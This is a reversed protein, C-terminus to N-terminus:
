PRAEQVPAASPDPARPATPAAAVRPGRDLRRWSLEALYTLLALLLLLPRGERLREPERAGGTAPAELADPWTTTVRSTGGTLAALAVLDLAATPDAQLEPAAAPPVVLRGQDPEAATGVALRLAGPDPAVLRAEFHGPALRRFAPGDQAGVPRAAPWRDHDGLRRAGLTVVAGERRVTWAFGAPPRATRELTRALLPGLGDWASWGASGAGAPETTLASVRGLGTEWTALVPHGEARTELLVQAGPRLRTEVYGDLDPVPDLDPGADGGAGPAAEGEPWWTPGGRARVAHPGPRWAPLKATTPQKLLIEPLNFRNPVSYFRGKGWNALTVLFESHADPGILVTSANIGDEAMSRLLPEFAGTEVGGDTLILVHKYRTRVNKLGYFAEEIAPLIVTGGGANLRNLAREIEIANSAPQIPAAWRKAGYFEVIGVKDHPLLRRIALRAVEKALQVRNGGMSGSTDIIIVLTTSPDRKEEKQVLEVPLLDEVPTDHWGGPGFAGQGGTAFLGLGRERVVTALATAAADPLDAAPLDDLLVADYGALAAADTLDAPDGDVLDFGAGFLDGLEPAGGETRGGLYLVRRPGEIALTGALRDRPPIGGGPLALRAEVALFGEMAATPEFALRALVTGAERPTGGTEEAGPEFRLAALEAEDVTGPDAVLVLDFVEPADAVRVDVVARAGVRLPSGEGAPGQPLLAVPRPDGGPTAAHVSPLALGHVPVGRDALDRAAPGFTPATALGDTALTVAGARGDPIARGALALAAGLDSGAELVVVDDARDWRRALDDLQGPTPAALAASASRDVVVVQVGREEATRAVPRALAVVLLVLLLVRLGAVVPDLPPAGPGRRPLVLVLPVLVLALLWLPALLTM